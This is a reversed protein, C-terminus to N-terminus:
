DSGYRDRNEHALERPISRTCSRLDLETPQHRNILLKRDETADFRKRSLSSRNARNRKARINKVCPLLTPSKSPGSRIKRSRKRNRAFQLTFASMGVILWSIALGRTTCFDRL